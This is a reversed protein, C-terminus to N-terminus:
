GEGGWRVAGYDLDADILWYATWLTLLNGPSRDEISPFTDM